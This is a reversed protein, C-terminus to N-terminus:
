PRAVTDGSTVFPLLIVMGPKLGRARRITEKNIELINEAYREDGYFKIAISKATDTKSVRYHAGEPPFERKPAQVEAPQATAMVPERSVPGRESTPRATSSQQRSGEGDACSLFCACLGALVFIELRAAM